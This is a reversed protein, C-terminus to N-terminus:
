TPTSMAHQIDRVQVWLVKTNRHSDTFSKVVTDMLCESINITQIRRDGENPM